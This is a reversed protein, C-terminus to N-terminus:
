FLRPVAQPKLCSILCLAQSIPKGRSIEWSLIDDESVKLLFEVYAAQDEVYRKQYLLRTVEYDKVAISVLYLLNTMYEFSLNFRDAIELLAAPFSLLYYRIDGHLVTHGVEHRIGGVEVLRPLNRM